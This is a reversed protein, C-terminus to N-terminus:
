THSLEPCDTKYHGKKGCGFCEIDKMDTNSPMKDEHDKSSRHHHDYDRGRHNKKRFKNFKKLRSEMKNFRGAILTYWTM